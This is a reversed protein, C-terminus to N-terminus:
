HFSARYSLGLGIDRVGLAAADLRISDTAAWRFGLSPRNRLGVFGDSGKYEALLSLRPALTWDMNAIIGKYFGSGWGLSMRVPKSPQGAVNSAFSTLNKSLLGYFSADSNGLNGGADFVGVTVGPTKATEKVLKFKGNVVVRSTGDTIYSAGVELNPLLGFTLGVTQIDSHKEGHSFIDHYSADWSQSSVIRDDPTVIVGSIGGLYNSAGLAPLAMITLLGIVIFHAYRM